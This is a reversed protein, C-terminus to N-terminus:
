QFPPEFFDTSPSSAEYFKSDHAWHFGTCLGFDSVKLHGEPTFLFNDPKVDRHIFGLSHVTDIAVVMQALYAKAFSESFIDKKILLNLLDGGAMYEM